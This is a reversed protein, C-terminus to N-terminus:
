RAVVSSWPRLRRIAANDNEGAPRKRSTLDYTKGSPNFEKEVEARMKEFDLWKGLTLPDEVSVRGLAEGKTVTEQLFMLEDTETNPHLLKFKTADLLPPVLASAGASSALLAGDSAKAFPHKGLRIMDKTAARLQLKCNEAAVQLSPYGWFAGSYRLYPRDEQQRTEACNLELCAQAASPDYATMHELVVTDQFTLGTKEVMARFLKKYVDVGGHWERMTKTEDHFPAEGLGFPMCYDRFQKRPTAEVTGPVCGHRVLACSRFQNDIGADSVADKHFLLLGPVM